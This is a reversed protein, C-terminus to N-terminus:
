RKGPSNRARKWTRAAKTPSSIAVLALGLLRKVMHYYAKGLGQQMVRRGFSLRM